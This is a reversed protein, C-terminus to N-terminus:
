ARAGDHEVWRTKVNIARQAVEIKECEAQYLLQAINRSLALDVEDEAFPPPTKQAHAVSAATAAHGKTGRRGQSRQTGQRAAGGTDSPGAGAESACWQGRVSESAPGRTATDARGAKCCQGTDVARASTETATAGKTGGCSGM